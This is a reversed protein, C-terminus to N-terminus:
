AMRMRHHAAGIRAPPAATSAAHPLEPGAVLVDDGGGAVLGVLGAVEGCLPELAVVVVIM